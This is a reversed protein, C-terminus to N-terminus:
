FSFGFCEMNAVSYELTTLQQLGKSCNLSLRSTTPYTVYRVLISWNAGQNQGVQSFYDLNPNKWISDPPKKRLKPLIVFYTVHELVLLCLSVGVAALLM